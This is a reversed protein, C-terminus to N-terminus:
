VSYKKKIFHSYADISPFATLVGGGGGNRFFLDHDGTAETLREILQNNSRNIIEINKQFPSTGAEADISAYLKKNFNNLCECKNCNL